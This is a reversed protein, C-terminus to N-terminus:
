YLNGSCGSAETPRDYYTRSDVFRLGRFDNDKCDKLWAVSGGPAATHITGSWVSDVMGDAVIGQAAATKAATQLPDIITWDLLIM